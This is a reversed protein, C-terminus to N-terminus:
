GQAYCGGKPKKQDGGRGMPHVVKEELLKGDSSLVMRRLDLGMLMAVARLVAMVIIMFTFRRLLAIARYERDSLVGVSRDDLWKAEGDNLAGDFAVM